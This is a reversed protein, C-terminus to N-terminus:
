RNALLPNVGIEEGSELSYGFSGEDPRNLAADIQKILQQQWVLQKSRFYARQEVNM